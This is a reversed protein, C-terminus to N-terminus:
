KIIIVFRVKKPYGSKSKKNGAEVEDQTYQKGQKDQYIGPSIQYVVVPIVPKLDATNAKGTQLDKLFKIKSERNM